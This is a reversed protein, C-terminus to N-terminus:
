HINMPWFYDCWQEWLISPFTTKQTDLFAPLGLFVPPPKTVLDQRVSAAGHVRWAGRNMPNELCSYQLPNGNGEGPSRGDWRLFRVWAEQMAPPNKVSQAILFGRSVNTLGPAKILSPLPLGSRYEQRFFGMSLSAQHAATWPTSFLRVRSFRSLLLLPAEIQELQWLRVVM